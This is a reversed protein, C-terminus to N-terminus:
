ANSTNKGSVNSSYPEHYNLAVCERGKENESWFAKEWDIIMHREGATLM